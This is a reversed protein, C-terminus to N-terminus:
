KASKQVYRIRLEYLMGELLSSEEANLNNKTKEQLVSLTDILFKAQQLNEETKNNQPNPMDGLAIAAQMGLTTIFFSFNAEPATFENAIKSEEKEKEVQSKYSEDIDKKIQEDM